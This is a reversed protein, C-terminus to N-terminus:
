VAGAVKFKRDALRKAAVRNRQQTDALNGATIRTRVVQAEMVLTIENVPGRVENDKFAMISEAVGAGDLAAVHQIKWAETRLEADAQVQTDNLYPGFGDSQAFHSPDGSVVYDRILMLEGSPPLEVFGIDADQIKSPVTRTHWRTEDNPMRRTACAYIALDFTTVFKAKGIDQREIVIFEDLSETKGKGDALVGSRNIEVVLPTVLAGPLAISGRLKERQVMRIVGSSVDGEWQVAFPSTDAHNITMASGIVADGAKVALETLFEVWACEVAVPTVSGDENIKGFAWDIWGGIHGRPDTYKIRWLRRWGDRIAAHVRDFDATGYQGYLGTGEFTESWFANCIEADSLENPGFNNAELLESLTYIVGGDSYVQELQVQLEPPGGTSVTQGPDSGVIRICHREHYFCRVNRPTGLIVTELASWVPEIHWSYLSLQPLKGIADLDECAPFRFYGDNGVTLSNGSEDLLAGLGNILTLGSLHEGDRMASSVFDKYASGGVNGRLVDVSAVMERLASLYTTFETGQLYGDGFRILFDKDAVRRSLIIRKDACMVYCTQANHKVVRLIYVGEIKVTAEGPNNGPKDPGTVELYTPRGGLSKALTKLTAFHSGPCELTVTRAVTGRYKPWEAYLYPLTVGGLNYTVTM